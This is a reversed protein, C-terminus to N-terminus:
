AADGEEDPTRHLAQKLDVQMQDLRENTQATAAQWDAQLKTLDKEAVAQINARLEKGSEPAFLLAITAGVAAGLLLYVIEKM